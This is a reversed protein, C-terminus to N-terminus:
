HNPMSFRHWSFGDWFVGSPGASPAIWVATVAPPLQPASSPLYRAGDMLYFEVDTPAATFGVFVFAHRQPAGSLELKKLVDPTQSLFVGIWECLAVGHEDIAGAIGPMGLYVSSQGIAEYSFAHTIGLAELERYLSPASRRLRFDVYIDHLERDEFTCLIRKLHQKLTKIRTHKTIIVHWNRATSLYLAGQAPGINWTETYAKDIAGVCEIAIEPNEIPGVRFDYLSNRKGTDHQEVPRNLIQEIIRQALLEENKM